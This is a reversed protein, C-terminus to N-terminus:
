IRKNIVKFDKCAGQPHAKKIDKFAEKQNKAKVWATHKKFYVIQYEPM